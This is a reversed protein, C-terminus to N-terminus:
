KKRPKRKMPERINIAIAKDIEEQERLADDDRSDLYAENVTEVVIELDSRIGGFGPAWMLEALERLADVPDLWHSYNLAYVDYEPPRQVTYLLM